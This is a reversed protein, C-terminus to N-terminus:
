QERLKLRGSDNVFVKFETGCYHCHIEEGDGFPTDMPNNASCSPCDFEKFKSTAGASGMEQKTEDEDYAYPDLPM